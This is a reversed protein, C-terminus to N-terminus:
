FIEQSVKRVLYIGLLDNKIDMNIAWIVYTRIPIMSM